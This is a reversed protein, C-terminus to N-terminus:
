WCHAFKRIDFQLRELAVRGLVFDGVFLPKPFFILVVQDICIFISDRRHGWIAVGFVYDEEWFGPREPYVVGLFLRDDLFYVREVFVQCGQAHPRISRHHSYSVLASANFHHVRFLLEVQSSELMVLLSYVGQLIQLISQVRAPIVEDHTLEINSHSIYNVRVLVRM